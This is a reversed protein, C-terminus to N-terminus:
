GNYEMEVLLDGRDNFVPDHMLFYGKAPLYLRHQDALATELGVTANEIATTISKEMDEEFVAAVSQVPKGWHLNSSPDLTGQSSVSHGTVDFVVKGDEVTALGISMTWKLTFTMNTSADTNAPVM